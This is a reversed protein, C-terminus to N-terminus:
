MKISNQEASKTQRLGHPHSRTAWEKVHGRAGEPVQLSAVEVEVEVTAVMVTPHVTRTWPIYKQFKVHMKTTKHIKPMRRLNNNGNKLMNQKSDKM